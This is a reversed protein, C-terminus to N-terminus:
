HEPGYGARVSAILRDLLATWLARAEDDTAADTAAIWHHAIVEVGHMLSSVLLAAELEDVDTNRAALELALEQTTRSFTAQFLQQPRSDEVTFGGLANWLFSIIGPVDTARIAAAVDEFMSLRTGPGAPRKNVASRFSEIVLALEETCATTVIDDISSFHNFVTRRSVDAREALLDVNIGAIGQEAIIVRAADLIARHHRARLAARRDETPVATSM